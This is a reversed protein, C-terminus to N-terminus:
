KHGGGSSWGSSSGSSWGRTSSGGSCSSMNFLTALSVIAICYAKYFGRGM